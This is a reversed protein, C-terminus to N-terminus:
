DAALEFRILQPVMKLVDYSVLPTRGGEEVVCIQVDKINLRNGPANSVFFERVSGKVGGWLKADVEVFTTHVTRKTKVETM